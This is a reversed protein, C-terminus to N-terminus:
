LFSVTNESLYLVTCFLLSPPLPIHFLRQRLLCCVQFMLIVSMFAPFAYDADKGAHYNETSYICQNKRCKRCFSCRVTSFFFMCMCLVAILLLQDAAFFFSFTCMMMRIFTVPFFRNKDTCRGFGVSMLVCVVAVCFFLDQGACICIGVVYMIVDVSAVCDLSFEDTAFFFSLIGMVVCFLAVLGLSFEDASLFLVISMLVCVVAILFFKDAAFFFVFM